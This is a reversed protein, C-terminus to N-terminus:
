SPIGGSMKNRTDHLVNYTAKYDFSCRYLYGLLSPSLPSSSPYTHVTHMIHTTKLVVLQKRCFGWAAGPKNRPPARWEMCIVGKRTLGGHPNMDFHTRHVIGPSILAVVGRQGRGSPLNTRNSLQLSM